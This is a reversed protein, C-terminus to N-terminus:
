HMMGQKLQRTKTLKAEIAAIDTDMDPLITAIAKQEERPPVPLILDRLATKSIGFVKMGTTVRLFEDHLSKLNGLHGKFGLSFTDIKERLVFTHLGAIAM